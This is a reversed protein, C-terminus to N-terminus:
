SINFQSLLIESVQCLECITVQFRFPISLLDESNYNLKIEYRKFISFILFFENNKAKFSICVSAFKLGLLLKMKIEIIIHFSIHHSPWLHMQVQNHNQFLLFCQPHHYLHQPLIPVLPWKLIWVYVQNMKFQQESFTWQLLLMNAALYETAWFVLFHKVM